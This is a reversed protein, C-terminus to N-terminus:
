LVALMILALVVLIKPMVMPMTIPSVILFPHIKIKERNYLDWYKKPAVFPLHPKHFGIALFFPKQNNAMRDILKKGKSLVEGDITISVDEKVEGVESVPAEAMEIDDPLKIVTFGYTIEWHGSCLNPYSGTWHAEFLTLAESNIKSDSTNKLIQM